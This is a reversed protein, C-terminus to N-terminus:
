GTSRPLGVWGLYLGSGRLFADRPDMALCLTHGSLGQLWDKWSPTGSASPEIRLASGPAGLLFRAQPGMAERAQVSGLAALLATKL